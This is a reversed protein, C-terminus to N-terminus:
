STSPKEGVWIVAMKKPNLHRRFAQQIAQRTVRKVKSRYTDYYNLPLHYIGLKLLAEAISQNSAFHLPFSGILYRKAAELEAESPGQRIFDTLVQRSIALAKQAKQNRTGLSIIFPGKAALPMFFSYAAYSLGRKERVQTFLRSVLSGGGLSYNGVILPFYDPTQYSMGPQGLRINTQSAPFPIAREVAKKLPLASPLPSAKKGTSLSQTVQEAIAKAETLSVDGVIAVTANAAVYHRQYFQKIMDPTIQKISNPTGLIPHAYPHNDYVAKFFHQNAVTSPSQQEQAIDALQENKVDTITSSSFSPKSVVEAFLALVPKLYAAKKLSRLRITAADRHTTFSYNAGVSEFGQAIQDADLRTTGQDLLSNTLHAIGPHKGDRASGADFALQVDVIPLSNAAVFYVSAGQRTKWHQIALIPKAWLAQASVLLLLTLLFRKM